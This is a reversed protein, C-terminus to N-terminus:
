NRKCGILRQLAWVLHCNMSVSSSGSNTKWLLRLVGALGTGRSLVLFSFATIGSQSSCRAWRVAELVAASLEGLLFITGQSLLSLLLITKEPKAFVLSPSPPDHVTCNYAFYFTFIIWSASLLVLMWPLFLQRWVPRLKTAKSHAKGRLPTASHTASTALEGRPLTTANPLPRLSQVPMPEDPRPPAAAM